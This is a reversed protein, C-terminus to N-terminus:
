NFVKSQTFRKWCRWIRNLCLISLVIGCNCRVTMENPETAKLEPSTNPSSPCVQSAPESAIGSRFVALFIDPDWGYYNIFTNLNDHIFFFFAFDSTYQWTIVQDRSYLPIVCFVSVYAKQQLFFFARTTTEKRKFSKFLHLHDSLPRCGTKMPLSKLEIFITM